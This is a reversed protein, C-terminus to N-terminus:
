RRPRPALGARAREVWRLAKAEAERRKVERAFLIAQKELVLVFPSGQRITDRAVPLDFMEIMSHVHRRREKALPWRRDRAVPDRLFATLERCLECRCGLDAEISWDSPARPPTALSVRLSAGVHAHLEDLDLRGIETGAGKAQAQQLVAVLSMPALGGGGAVLARRLEERPGPSDLAAVAELLVVAERVLEHRIAEGDPRAVLTRADVVRARFAAIEARLVAEGLARAGGWHHTALARVLVPLVALGRPEDHRQRERWRDFLDRSWTLGYREAAAVLASANEATIRDPGLPALLGSALGPEDLALALRAVKGFFRPRQDSGARQPWFSLLVRVGGRAEDLGGAKLLRGVEAVAWGPSARARLVFRRSRPWLVVAARHYWRDVTNGYNGMYGEHESRFPDFEVSPRTWCMEDEGVHTSVGPDVAGDRGVWHGLRAESDHLDGLSDGEPDGAEDDDEDEGPGYGFASEDGKGSWTEHVEALALHAELDLRDAVSLLAAVRARDAGKLREFALGRQTYEHDLLYVLRDPPEGSASGFRTKGPTSFYAKVSTALRDVAGHPARSAAAGEHLLHYTLSIRYGRTVRQIEHRCDAYFAVLRLAGADSAADFIRRKGKHSVVLRGGARRSPLVVVLTALMGDGRESDQHPAFFQGPGYVLLKDLVPRLAGGGALGLRRGITALKSALARDFAAGVAVQDAPIEWTSRVREDHRTEDRVGFPAPRAAAILKAAVGETVPVAVRGVGRVRLELVDAALSQEVAFEARAGIAGIAASIEELM